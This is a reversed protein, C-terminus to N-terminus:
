HPHQDLVHQPARPPVARRGSEPGPAIDEPTIPPGHWMLTVGHEDCYAGKDNEVPFDHEGKSCATM